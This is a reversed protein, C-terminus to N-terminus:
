GKLEKAIFSNVDGIRVGKENLVKNDTADLITAWAGKKFVRCGKKKAKPYNDTVEKGYQSLDVEEVEEDEDDDEEIDEDEDDTEYEDMDDDTDPAPTDIVEEENDEQVTEEPEPLTPSGDKVPPTCEMGKVLEFRNKFVKDLRIASPVIDGTRYVNGYQKHVGNKLRFNMKVQNRM